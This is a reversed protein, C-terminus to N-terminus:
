DFFLCLFSRFLGVSTVLVTFLKPYYDSILLFVSNFIRPFLDVNIYLHKNCNCLLRHHRGTKSQDTHLLVSIYQLKCLVSCVTYYIYIYVDFIPISHFITVAAVVVLVVFVGHM